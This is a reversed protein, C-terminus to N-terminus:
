EASNKKLCSLFTLWLFCLFHLDSFPIYILFTLKSTSSSSYYFSLSDFRLLSQPSLPSPSFKFAFSIFSPWFPEAPTQSDQQATGVTGLLSWGLLVEPHCSAWRYNVLVLEGWDQNVPILHCIVLGGQWLLYKEAGAYPVLCGKKNLFSAEGLRADWASAPSARSDM